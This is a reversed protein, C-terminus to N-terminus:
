KKFRGLHVDRNGIVTFYKNLWTRELMAGTNGCVMKPEGTRFSWDTDLKYEHPHEDINGNYIAVQGYNESSSELVDPIKFLRYTVSYFKVNGVAKKVERNLIKIKDRKLRRPDTFGVSQCLKEFDKVYMAKGLIRAKKAVSEPLRRNCFVDRYVLEGGIKLVGYLSNLVLDKCPSLNVAWNSVCIDLPSIRINDDHNDWWFSDIYESYGKIFKLNPTALGICTSYERVCENAIKLLKDDIEVGYVNGKPGVLDSAIYSDLTVISGICMVNLGEIGFPLCSICKRYQYRIGYPIKQLTDNLSPPDIQKAIIFDSSISNKLDSDKDYYNEIATKAKEHEEDSWSFLKHLDELEHFETTYQTHESTINQM